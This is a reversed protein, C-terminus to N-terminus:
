RLSDLCGAAAALSPVIVHPIALGCNEPETGALLVLRGIGAAGGAKIDSCRDGVLVSRQLDIEHERAARLFMGPSPKRDPCDKRYRKVISAPHHPCYYYADIPVHERAFRDLIWQMLLHFDEESYLGRAIGSQNTVVVIKYQRSRALRCLEFIGPVFRVDTAKCVYGDDRNVVGDRDLFLAPHLNPRATM